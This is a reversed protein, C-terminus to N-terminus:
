PGTIQGGQAPELGVWDGHAVAGSHAQSQAGCFLSIEQFARQDPRSRLAGPAEEGPRRAVKRVRRWPVATTPLAVQLHFILDAARRCHAAADTLRGQLM